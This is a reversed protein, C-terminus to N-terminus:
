MKPTTHRKKAEVRLESLKELDIEGYVVNKNRRYLARAKVRIEELPGEEIPKQFTFIGDYERLQMRVKDKNKVVEITTIRETM